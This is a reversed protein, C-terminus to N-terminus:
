VLSNSQPPHIDLDTIKVLSDLLFFFPAGQRSIVGRSRRRRRRRFVACGKLRNLKKFNRDLELLEGVISQVKAAKARSRFLPPRQFEPRSKVLTSRILKLRSAQSLCDMKSILRLWCVNHFTLLIFVPTLLFPVGRVAMDLADNDRWHDGMEVGKGKEKLLIPAIKSVDGTSIVALLKEKLVDM